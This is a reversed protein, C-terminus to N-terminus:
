KYIEAWKAAMMDAHEDQKVKIYKLFSKETKHGSVSMIMLTPLGRKYMNTCFSRRGTHSSILEYKPSTITQLEGGITKTITEKTNIEALRAVEKIYDNFKQNSIPEPLNFDYKILIEMVVPHMPIKVKTNTKQQRFTIFGDQIDTKGVKELDSFRCGTWALLLFWDRVRDLHPSDTFDCEKLQELEAENLYITDTEETFVHFQNYTTSTNVGANTAENLMLKLVRIHKGVSNATFNLNQLYEVFSDYFRRDVQEFEYDKRKKVKAFTKLHKQTARYQQINNYTLLRGTARDRRQPATEVFRDIWEFLTAPKAQEEAPAYKRPNIVKDIESELWESNIGEYSTLTDIIAFILEKRQIVNKEFELRESKDLSYSTRVGQTTNDWDKPHILLESTHFLQIKAGDRVRFRLNAKKKATARVFAWVTAMKDNNALKAVFIIYQM